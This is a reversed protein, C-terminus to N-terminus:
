CNGYQENVLFLLPRYYNTLNSVKEECIFQVNNLHCAENSKTGKGGIVMFTNGLLIVGHASRASNLQGLNSWAWSVADLRLISSLQTGGHDKGGFYYFNSDVFIVAYNSFTRVPAEEIDSWNEPEFKESKNSKSSGVAVLM